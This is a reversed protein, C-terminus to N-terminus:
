SIDVCHYFYSRRKCFSDAAWKTGKPSPQPPLGSAIPEDKKIFSRREGDKNMHCSRSVGKKRVEETPKELLCENRKKNTPKNYFRDALEALLRGRFCQRGCKNPVM